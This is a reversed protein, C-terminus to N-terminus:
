STTVTIVSSYCYISEILALNIAIQTIGDPVAWEYTETVLHGTTTHTVVGDITITARFNNRDAGLTHFVIVDGPQVSIGAAAATYTKGHISVGTEVENEYFRGEGTIEVTVVSPMGAAGRKLVFVSM